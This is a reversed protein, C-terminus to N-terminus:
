ENRGDARPWADRRLRDDRAPPEPLSLHLGAVLWDPDRVLVLTGRYHGDVAQGQHTGTQRQTGVVLATDRIVRAPIDATFTFASFTTYHSDGPVFRDLWEQRDLLYGFPGAFVFDDHLIADLEAPDGALEAAAWRDVQRQLHSPLISTM